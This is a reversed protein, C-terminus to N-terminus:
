AARREHQAGGRREERARREGLLRRCTEILEQRNVPKSLYEDCGADICKERDTDLAHATLAIVPADFGMGRLKRTAGYGDLVPMQMDMLVLEYPVGGLRANEIRKLALDGDFAFDVVAGTARLFHKLLVRNDDSDDVVLVRVGDLSQPEHTQPGPSGPTQEHALSPARITFTTGEGPRSQYSITGELAEALDSAYALGLGSGGFERTLRDQAQHFPEFVKDGQEPDIGIGTDSITIIGVPVADEIEVRASIEVSGERTFKFANEVIRDVIQALRRPQTVIPQECSEDIHVRVDLGEDEGRMRAQAICPALASGLTTQCPNLMFQGSEIASLDLMTEILKELQQASEYISLSLRAREEETMERDNLLESFGLVANMPTRFEHGMNTLLRWRVSVARRERRASLELERLQRRVILFTPEIIFLAMSGLLIALMVLGLGARRASQHIESVSRQQYLSVITEMRPLFVAQAERIQEVCGGIRSRTLDSVYPATREASLTLKELERADAIMRDYPVSLSRVQDLEDTTARPFFAEPAQDGFLTHHNLQLNARAASLEDRLDGLRDWQQNQVSVMIEYAVSRIQQSLLRMRGSENVKASSTDDLARTIRFVMFMNIIMIVAVSMLTLKRFRAIRRRVGKNNIPQDNM